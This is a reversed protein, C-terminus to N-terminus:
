EDRSGKVSKICIPNGSHVCETRLGDGGQSPLAQAVRCSTDKMVNCEVVAHAHERTGAQDSVQERTGGRPPALLKSQAERGNVSQFQLFKPIYALALIGDSYTVILGSGILENAAAGIGFSDRPFYRINITRLDFVFRGERDAELEMAQFLLRASHAVEVIDAGSFFDRSISRYLAM